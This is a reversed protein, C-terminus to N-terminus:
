VLVCAPKYQELEFDQIPVNPVNGFILSKANETGSSRVGQVRHQWDWVTTIRGTYCSGISVLVECSIRLHFM